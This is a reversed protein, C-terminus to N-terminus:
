VSGPEEYLVVGSHKVTVRWIYGKHMVAYAEAELALVTEAPFM